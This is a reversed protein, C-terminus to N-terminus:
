HMGNCDPGTWFNNCTCHFTSNKEGCDDTCKGGDIYNCCQSAMPGYCQNLGTCSSNCAVSFIYAYQMIIIILSIDYSVHAITIMLVKM